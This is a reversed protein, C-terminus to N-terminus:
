VGAPPAGEAGTGFLAFDYRVPDAPDFRRLRDTLALAARWDTQPRQLLGLRRATRAAHVDLPCVLQHPRIRDWLGFDVGRGDRRVMWRLFMLLRKCASGRVPTSVHKRTRHPADPHDFFYNHFGMLAWEVTPADAPL